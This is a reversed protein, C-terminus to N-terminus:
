PVAAAAEAGPAAGVPAAADLAPAAAEQAFASAALVALIATASILRAAICRMENEM